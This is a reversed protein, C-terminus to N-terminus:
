GLDVITDKKFKKPQSCIYFLDLPSKNETYAEIRYDQIEIPQSSTNLIKARNIRNMSEYVWKKLGLPLKMYWHYSWHNKIKSAARLSLQHYNYAEESPYIGFAEIKEFYPSILKFLSAHDYEQYHWPNVGSSNSIDPTSLFFYGGTKLHACVSALFAEPRQLHELLQFSIVSDFRKDLHWHGDLDISHLMNQSSSELSLAKFSKDALTLSTANRSCYQLGQGSGSGLELTDGLDYQSLFQYPALCRMLVPRDSAKHATAVETKFIM